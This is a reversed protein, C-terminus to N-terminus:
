AKDVVLRNGQMDVVRYQGPTPMAGARLVATWQAGRYQVRATGDAEWQTVTVNEGIDLNMAPDASAPLGSARARRIRRGVLVCLVGVGAAVTIQVPMALGLHAALAGAVLGLGLMLLYITGTLLEAAVAIGALIWWFTSAEIDM